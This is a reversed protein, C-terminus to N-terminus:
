HRGFPVNIGLWPGAVFGGIDKQIPIFLGFDIGIKRSAYRAGASFIVLPQDSLGLYYNETLLYWKPGTRIMGALTLTPTKSIGGSSYAWGAGISINKDRTGITGTGYLVGFNSNSEGIITGALVGAGVNFKDKVVPISLKPNIWVPTSAGAFLFLPVIGAGISFYNTVGYSVQNFFIWVNQYYGEGKKLGYGSPAFFYRGAQPNELWNRGNEIKISDIATIKKIDSTRITITGLQATSLTIGDADRSIIKGVYENGDVTEVRYTSDKKDQSYSNVSLLMCFVMALLVILRKVTKPNLTLSVPHSFLYLFYDIHPNHNDHYNPLKKM